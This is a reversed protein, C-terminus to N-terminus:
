VAKGTMDHGHWSTLNINFGFFYIIQVPTSCNSRFFAPVTAYWTNTLTQSNCLQGLTALLDSSLSLLRIGLMQIRIRWWNWSERRQGLITWCETENRTTSVTIRSMHSHLRQSSLLFSPHTFFGHFHSRRDSFSLSSSQTVSKKGREYHKVYQGLDHAAVALVTPDDSENLLRILIRHVRTLFLNWLLRLSNFSPVQTTWFEQWEVEDCKRELVIGIRACSDM